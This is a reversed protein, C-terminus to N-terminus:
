RLKDITDKDKKLSSGTSNDMFYNYKTKVCTFQDCRWLSIQYKNRLIDPQYSVGEFTCDQNFNLYDSESYTVTEYKPKESDGESHDKMAFRSYLHYSCM